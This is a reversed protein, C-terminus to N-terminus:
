RKKQQAVRPFGDTANYACLPKQPYSYLRLKASFIELMQPFTLRASTENDAPNNTDFFLSQTFPQRDSFQEVIFVVILRRPVNWIFHNGM